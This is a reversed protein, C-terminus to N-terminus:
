TTPPKPAEPRVLDTTLNEFDADETLAATNSMFTNGNTVAAAKLAEAFVTLRNLQKRVLKLEESGLDAVVKRNTAM